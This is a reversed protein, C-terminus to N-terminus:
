EDARYGPGRIIMGALIQTNEGNAIVIKGNVLVYLIGEPYQHPAAYTAKDSITKPNFIVIDARMETRILGRDMLGLKTAPFSSSKRVAEELTLIKTGPERPEEERTEGRVYKRFVLPFTGYSRPHPTGKSLPGYKALAFGDTEIMSLPHSLLMQMDKESHHEIVISIESAEETIVDLTADLPNKRRMVGIEVLNKGSYDPNKQSRVIWINQPMGDAMLTPTPMIHEEKQTMIWEKILQRMEPNELREIIKPMGGDLAWQPLLTTINTQGCLYPPIDTTVALGSDRAEELIHLIKAEEGWNPYHSELHSIQLSIGSKKATELAERVSEEWTYGDSRIHTAYLGGYAAVTKCLEIMEHTDAFMGPAYALGSSLGIAGEEMARAILVKMQELDKPSASRGEEGMVMTRVQGHAVLAMVNCGVGTKELQSLYGGFSPWQESPAAGYGCNGIVITTIGQRVMSEARPNVTLNIDSHNHIDIFGPAVILGDADITKSAAEASIKGVKIILGNKIGVDAPFWPNGTGDVIRGNRVVIDFDEQSEAENKCAFSSLFVYFLLIFCLYIFIRRKITKECAYRERMKFSSTNKEFKLRDSKISKSEIQYKGPDKFSIFHKINM